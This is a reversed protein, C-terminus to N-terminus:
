LELGQFAKPPLYEKRAFNELSSCLLNAMTQRCIYRFSFILVSTVIGIYWAKIDNLFYILYDVYFHIEGMHLM